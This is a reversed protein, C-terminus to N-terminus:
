KNRECCEESDVVAIKKFQAFIRILVRMNDVSYNGVSCM